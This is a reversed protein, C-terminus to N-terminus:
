PGDITMRRGQGRQQVRFSISRLLKKEQLSRQETRLSLSLTSSVNRTVQKELNKLQKEDNLFLQSTKWYERNTPKKEKRRLTAGLLM